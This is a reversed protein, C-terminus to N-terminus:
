KETFEPFCRMKNQNKSTQNPPNKLNLGESGHGPTGPGPSRHRCQVSHPLHAGPNAPTEGSSRALGPQGHGARVRGVAETVRRLANQRDPVPARLFFHVSLILMITQVWKQTKRETFSFKWVTVKSMKWNSDKRQISQTKTTAAKQSGAESTFMKYRM